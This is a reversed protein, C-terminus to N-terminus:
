RRRLVIAVTAQTRWGRRVASWRRANPWRRQRGRWAVGVIALSQPRQEFGDIAIITAMEALSFQLIRQDITVPGLEIRMGHAHHNSHKICILTARNVKILKPVTRQKRKKGEM